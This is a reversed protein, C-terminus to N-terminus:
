FFGINIGVVNYIKVLMGENLGVYRGILCFMGEQQSDIYRGIVILMVEKLWRCVKRNVVLM